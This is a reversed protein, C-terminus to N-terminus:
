HHVRAENTVDLRIDLDAFLARARREVLQETRAGLDTPDFYVLDYDEMGHTPAFGHLENWDTQAIGGANLYWGSLALRGSRELIALALHNQRVAIELGILQDRLPAYALSRSVEITGGDALESM